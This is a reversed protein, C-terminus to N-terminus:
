PEDHAAVESEGSLGHRKRMSINGAVSLVFSNHVIRDMISESIPSGEDSEPDIREYWEEPNYQTCFIISGGKVGNVRSEIIELLNYSEQPTLPRILWEDLILLDVKRYAKLTKTLTGTGMAINLEDLLEPMRMYKVIYFKRCAANGIACGLFTKGSGTAGKLIIHHKEDIFRCTAFRLMQAKDLKRDPIYEIDEICAGPLSFRANNIFRNLKNKQRHNWEADVLLAFREEFELSNYTNSDNLQKEFESAMTTCRMTRLTDSTSVNIM